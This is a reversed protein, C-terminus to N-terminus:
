WQGAGEVPAWSPCSPSGLRGKRRTQSCWWSLLPSSVWVAESIQRETSFLSIHTYKVSLIERLSWPKSKNECFPSRDQWGLHHLLSVWTLPGPAQRVSGCQSDAFSSRLLWFCSEGVGPAQWGSRKVKKGFRNKRSARIFDNVRFHLHSM